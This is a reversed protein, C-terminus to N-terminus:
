RGEVLVLPSGNLIIEAAAALDPVVPVRDRNLLEECEAPIPHGSRVMIPFVDAELAAQIDRYSDGVLVAQSLDFRHKAAADLLMGPRPKRCACDDEPAHPCVLVDDIRGGADRIAAVMRRHIADVEPAEVWGRGVASQNSVVVVPVGLAALRVFTALVGPLFEFEEWTLVSRGLERNVVGDRDLLVASVKAREM